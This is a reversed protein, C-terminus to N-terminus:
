MHISPQLECQSVAPPSVGTTHSNDDSIMRLTSIDAQYQYRGINLASINTHYQFHCYPIPVVRVMNCFCVSDDNLFTENIKKPKLLKSWNWRQNSPWGTLWRVVGRKTGDEMRSDAAVVILCAGAGLVGGVCTRGWRVGHRTVNLSASWKVELLFVNLCNNLNPM